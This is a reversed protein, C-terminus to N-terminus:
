WFVAFFVGMMLTCGLFVCASFAAPMPESSFEPDDDCDQPTRNLLDSEGQERIRQAREM